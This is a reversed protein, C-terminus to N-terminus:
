DDGGGSIRHRNLLDVNKEIAQLTATASALSEAMKATDKRVESIRVHLKEMDEHKPMHRFSTELATLRNAHDNATETVSSIRYSLETKVGDVGAKIEDKTAKQRSSFWIVWTGIISALALALAAYDAIAKLINFIM